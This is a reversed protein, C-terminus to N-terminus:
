RCCVTPCGPPSRMTSYGCFCSGRRAGGFRETTEENSHHVQTEEGTDCQVALAQGGVSTIKAAIVTAEGIGSTGGSIWAVNDKLRVQAM